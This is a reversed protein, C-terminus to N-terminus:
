YKTLLHANKIREEKEFCALYNETTKLDNHGLSESIYAINAGSRKLITAYSHRATYSSISGIGLAKGINNMRKNIARTLYATKEKRRIADDSTNIIPFIFNNPSATAGWKSIIEQMPETLIARIEKKTKTTRETKQRIFRIEGDIIDCYKLKVFDAVNIGNCFYLFMWYDRFKETAKSGDDYKAIQGIQDLTLAMKRGEGTQIEYKGFGFPYQSEKVVGVRKADNMVARIARMNMGITTQNKGEGKLFKEFRRLWDININEFPIKEGAFREISKLVGNYYLMSGIRDETKLSGIRSQFATNITDSLSKKLRTNLNDFSFDANSALEDVNDKVISFSNEISERTSILERNKTTMIKGWEESTLEKGTSYYKQTRNYFVQVKVPFRGSKKPRRSDLITTVSIGDKSYRFMSILKAHLNQITCTIQM